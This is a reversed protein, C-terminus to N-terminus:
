WSEYIFAIKAIKVTLEGSWGVPFYDIKYQFRQSSNPKLLKDEGTEWQSALVPYYTREYVAKGADDLYSITIEIKRVTKVGTNKIEGSLLKADFGMDDIQLNTLELYAMYAERKSQKSEVPEDKPGGCMSLGLIILAILIVVFIIAAYIIFRPRSVLGSWFGKQTSEDEDRMM